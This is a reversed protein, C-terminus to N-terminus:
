RGGDQIVNKLAEFKKSLLQVSAEYLLNNKAMRAMEHDLNLKSPKGDPGKISEITYPLDM